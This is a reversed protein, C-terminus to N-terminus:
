LKMPWRRHAAMSNKRSAGEEGDELAPLSISVVHRGKGSDVDLDGLDPSHSVSRSGCRKAVNNALDHFPNVYLDSSEVYALKLSSPASSIAKALHCSPELARLDSAHIQRTRCTLAAPCPMCLYTSVGAHDIVVVADHDCIDDGAYLANSLAHSDAKQGHAISPSSLTKSSFM